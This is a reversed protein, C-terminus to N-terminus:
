SILSAMTLTLSSVRPESLKETLRLLEDITKEKIQAMTVARSDSEFSASGAETTRRLAWRGRLCLTRAKGQM